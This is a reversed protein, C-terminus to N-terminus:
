ERANARGLKRCLRALDGQESADLGGMAEVVDAVHAPFAGAVFRRGAPTLVVRVARRDEPDPERGVWGRDVLKDVILTVNARSTLQKRGLDCQRLPGLHLLAELVGLEKETLGAERLGDELRGRVAACARALKIWADLSRV